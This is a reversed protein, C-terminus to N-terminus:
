THCVSVSGSSVGFSIFYQPISLWIFEIAAPTQGQMKTVILKLLESAIRFQYIPRWHGERNIPFKSGQFAMTVSIKRNNEGRFPGKAM